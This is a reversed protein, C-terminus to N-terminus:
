DGRWFRDFMRKESEPDLGVGTDEVTVQVEDGGPEILVAVAGDSPTHRLANALLAQCPSSVTGPVAGISCAPKCSKRASTKM